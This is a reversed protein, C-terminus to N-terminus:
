LGPVQFQSHNMGAIANSNKIFQRLCGQKSRINDPNADDDENVILEFCFGLNVGSVDSGSITVTVYTDGPGANNDTETDDVTHDQGGILPASHGWTMEPLPYPWTAPVSANYGGAPPTDVDGLTASRVRVKYTGDTLGSFTYAGVANSTVSAIYSDSNDYLEVDANPSAVDNIGGDWNNATGTFDVDEFVVGTITYTVAGTVTYAAGFESTSGYDNSGLDETATATVIDGVSGAFSHSFNEAGSGTHNVDVSSVFVEGEGNGSPDAGSPNTFFEIRYDGSPVDLDFDVSITGGSETASTIEPYNLLDNAGTDSDNGDNPTVDDSGLDIGLSGNDYISNRLIDNGSADNNQVLVGVWTNNAIVNGAGTDIGGVTNGDVTTIQVGHHTNGLPATGTHDTAGM